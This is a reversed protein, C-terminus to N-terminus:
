GADGAKADRRIFTALGEIEPLARSAAHELDQPRLGLRTVAKEDVQRALEGVDAGFGLTHSLCDAAHVLDVMVDGQGDPRASPEHHYAIVRAVEEPLNWTAAVDAGISAHDGGLLDRECQLLSAHGAAISKRLDEAHGALFSSIVLKGIDHLLGATFTLAPAALKREKAVRESLVAVAVSHLWYVRSDIGYGPLTPPVVAEVAAMAGLQFLRRPGLLTIAERVSGIKRAFGFYASNALRLLNATLAVDVQVVAEYEGIETDDHRILEALRVVTPSFTPLTKISALITARDIM